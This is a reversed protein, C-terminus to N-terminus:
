YSVVYRSLMNDIGSGKLNKAEAHNLRAVCEAMLSQQTPVGFAHSNTTDNTLNLTSYFGDSGIIHRIEVARMDENIRHTGSHDCAHVHFTQGPLADLILPTKILGVTATRSRRLLEAYALMAAVGSDDSEVLSDDVAADNRIFRQWQNNATIESTDKAVRVIKGAFHLDDILFWGGVGTGAEQFCIDNIEGWDPANPAATEVWRFRRAEDSLAYYPGVPLKVHIWEDQVQNLIGGAGGLQAEFYKAAATRLRITFFVGLDREEYCYFNITPISNESSCKELDWAAASGTPYWAYGLAAANGAAKMSASGVKVITGESTVDINTEGWYTDNAQGETWTDYGPKRLASALIIYNAYEDSNKKFDYLIMDQKVVITANAQSGGYYRDWNGDSHDADIKKLYLEPTTDVFWHVGVEPTGLGQAYATAVDCVRNVLTFNDLYPSDLFTINLANHVDETKTAGLTWGTTTATDFEKVTFDTILHDIIQKPSDYATLKGEVGHSTDCHTKILSMGDGWAGVELIEGKAMGIKPEVTTVTGNFVKTYADSGHKLSIDLGDFLDFVDIYNESNYDQVQLVAYSINNEPRVILISLADTDEYTTGDCEVKFHANAKFLTM